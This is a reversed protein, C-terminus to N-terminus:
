SLMFAPLKEVAQRTLLIRRSTVRFSVLLCQKNLSTYLLCMTTKRGTIHWVVEQSAATVEQCSELFYNTIIGKIPQLQTSSHQSNGSTVQGIVKILQSCYCHVSGQGLLYYLALLLTVSNDILYLRNMGMCFLDILCCLHFCWNPHVILM